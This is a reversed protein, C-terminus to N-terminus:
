FTQCRVPACKPGEVCNKVESATMWTSFNVEDSYDQWPMGWSCSYSYSVNTGNCQTSVPSWALVPNSGDQNCQYVNIYDPNDSTSVEIEGIWYNPPDVMQLCTLTPANPPPPAPIVQSQFTNNAVCYYANTPSPTDTYYATNTFRASGNWVPFWNTIIWWNVLNTSEYVNWFSGPPATITFSYSVNYSDPDFSAVGDSLSATNFIPDPNAGTVWRVGSARDYEYELGGGPCVNTNFYCDYGALNPLYNTILQGNVSRTSGWELIMCMANADAAICANPADAGCTGVGGGLSTWCIGNWETIQRASIFNTVTPDWVTDFPGTVYVVGNPGAALGSCGMYTRNTFDTGGLYFIPSPFQTGSITSFRVVPNLEDDATEVFVNTGSVAVGLVDDAEADWCYQTSGMTCCVVDPPAHIGVNTGTGMPQWQTGDWKIITPSYVWNGSNINGNIGHTIRAGLYVNTGDNALAVYNCFDAEACWGNEWSAMVVGGGLNAWNSGNWKKIFGPLCLRTAGTAPDTVYNTSGAGPEQLVYVNASADVTIAIIANSVSGDGVPFWQCTTLAFKAINTVSMTDGGRIWWCHYPANYCEPTIGTLAGGLYLYDGSIVLSYCVGNISALSQWGECKTWRILHGAAIAYFAGDKAAWLTSSSFERTLNQDEGCLDEYCALPSGPNNLDWYPLTDASARPAFGPTAFAWAAIGLTVLAPRLTHQRLLLVLTKKMNDSMEWKTEQGNFGGEM